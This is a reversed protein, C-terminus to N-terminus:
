IKKESSVDSLRQVLKAWTITKTRKSTIFFLSLSATAKGPGVLQHPICRGPKCDCHFTGQHHLQYLIWRGICSVWFICTRDRLPSSEGMFPFPLGSWYEQRSFKMSLAAQFAGTWPPAFLRVHSLMRVHFIGCGVPFHHFKSKIEQEWLKKWPFLELQLDPM